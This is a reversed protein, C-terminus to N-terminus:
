LITNIEESYGSENGAADFATIAFYYGGPILSIPASAVKNVTVVSSYQGSANGYYIKYGVVNQNPQGGEGLSENWALVIEKAVNEVPPNEPASVPPTGPAEVAAPVEVPTVGPATDVPVTGGNDVTEFGAVSEPDVGGSSSGGGGGGCGALIFMMVLSLFLFKMSM